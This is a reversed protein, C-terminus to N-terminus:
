ILVDIESIYLLKCVIAFFIWRVIVFRTGLFMENWQGQDIAVILDHLNIITFNCTSLYMGEEATYKFITGKKRITNRFFALEDLPILTIPTYVNSSIAGIGYLNQGIFNADWRPMHLDPANIIVLLSVPAYGAEILQGSLKNM